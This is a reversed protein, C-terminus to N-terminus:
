DLAHSRRKLTKKETRKEERWTVNLSKLQFPAHVDMWGGMRTLLRRLTSSKEDCIIVSGGSVGWKERM